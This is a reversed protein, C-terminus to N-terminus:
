CHYNILMCTDLVFKERHLDQVKVGSLAALEEVSGICVVQVICFCPLVM